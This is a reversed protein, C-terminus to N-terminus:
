FRQKQQQRHQVFIHPPVFARRLLNYNKTYKTPLPLCLSLNAALGFFGDLRADCM